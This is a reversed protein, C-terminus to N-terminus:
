PQSAGHVAQDLPPHSAPLAYAPDVPAGTIQTLRYREIIHRDAEFALEPFPGALSFWGLEELDDGPTAIGSLVQAKLVVVLTHLHEALFNSVVSIISSIAVTLGTEEQVERIGATLFDEHYEIFGGPLCWSGAAYSTQGRRGLLVRDGETILIVVGPAPNLYQIWGCEPCAARTLTEEELPTLPTACAPCFRYHRAAASSGAYDYSSFIQQPRM